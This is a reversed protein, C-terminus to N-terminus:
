QRQWSISMVPAVFLFACVDNWPDVEMNATMSAERVTRADESENTAATATGPRSGVNEGGEDRRGTWNGGGGDVTPGRDRAKAVTTRALAAVERIFPFALENATIFEMHGFHGAASDLLAVDSQAAPSSPYKLIGVFLNILGVMPFYFSLWAPSAADMDIYRTTLIINRAAEAAISTSVSAQEHIALAPDPGFMATIWPYAFVTHIAMLSGYYAFYIHTFNINNKANSLKLPNRLTGPQLHCPLQARWEELSQHLSSVKEILELPTRRFASVSVLRRSIESSIQAHHIAHTFLEIDITSDSVIATPIACSINDDDIGSPRGSRAAIAKECCYIAWFLWNRHLIESELLNWAKAAQRHLGKSQALRAANSCLM